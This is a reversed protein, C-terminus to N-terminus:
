TVCPNDQTVWPDDQTVLPWGPDAPNLFTLWPWIEPKGLSVLILSLSIPQWLLYRGLNTPCFQLYLAVGSDSSFLVFWVLYIKICCKKLIVCFIWPFHSSDFSPTEDLSSHCSISIRSQTVFFYSINTVPLIFSPSFYIKIIPSKVIGLNIFFFVNETGLWTGGSAWGIFIKCPEVQWLIVM